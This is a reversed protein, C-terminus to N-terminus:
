ASPGQSPPSTLHRRLWRSGEAIADRAQESVAMAEIFSHPAGPYVRSAVAVGAADLRQVMAANQEALVDRDGWLLLAPPLGRLDAHLPAALPGAGAEPVPGLYARWFEDMEAGSLMDGRTGLTRRAHESLSPSWAGYNLLLARVQGAAGADRLRLAGAVALNAGASDGALALRRGDIGVSRGHAALWALTAGVQDLAAPYPHEPALAYDVAVVPMALAAAYERLVRDHTDLGFMCWGGGHLYVLAPADETAGQPYFVRVAFPGHASELHMDALAHMGPGGERWRTRAQVAIRRREPWGSARGAGLQAGRDCVDEIFLRIQPDLAQLSRSM